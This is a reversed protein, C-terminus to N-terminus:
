FVNKRCHRWWTIHREQVERRVSAIESFAQPPPNSRSAKPRNTCPYFGLKHYVKRVLDKGIGSQRGLVYMQTPAVGPAPQLGIRIESDHAVTPNIDAIMDIIEGPRWVNGEVVDDPLEDKYQPILSYFLHELCYRIDLAAYRLNDDDGSDILRKSKDLYEMAKHHISMSDKRRTQRRRGVILKNNRALSCRRSIGRSM